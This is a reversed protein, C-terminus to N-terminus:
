APPVTCRDTPLDCSFLPACTAQAPDRVGEGKYDIVIYGDVKALVMEHREAGEGLDMSKANGPLLDTAVASASAKSEVHKAPVCWLGGLLAGTCNAAAAGLSQGSGKETESASWWRKWSPLTSPPAAPAEITESAKVSPIMPRLHLVVHM